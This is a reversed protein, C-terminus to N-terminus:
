THAAYSIIGGIKVRGGDIIVWIEIDFNEFIM